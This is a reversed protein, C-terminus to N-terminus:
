FKPEYTQIQKIITINVYIHKLIKNLIYSIIIKLANILKNQKLYAFTNFTYAKRNLLEYFM